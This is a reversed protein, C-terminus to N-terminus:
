ASVLSILFSAGRDGNRREELVITGGVHEILRRCIALGLGSGGLGKKKRGGGKRRHGSVFPEFIRQAVEAPVGPGTDTVRIETHRDDREMATIRLDGPKGDMATLANLLLNLFVQQLALPQIRVAADPDVEVTLRVGDRAPDRGLCALSSEIVEAIVARDAEGEARAFGLVAETIRSASQVGAITRELAKTLLSLDAPNSWALQAYALVPTLINNIEHAIGATLTGLTALQQSHELEKRLAALEAEAQALRAIIDAEASPAPVKPVSSVAGKRDM